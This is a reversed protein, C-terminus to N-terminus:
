IKIVVTLVKCYHASYTNLRGESNHFSLVQFILYSSDKRKKLTFSPYATGRMKNLFVATNIVKYERIFQYSLERFLLPPKGM